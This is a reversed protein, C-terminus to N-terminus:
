DLMRKRKRTGGDLMDKQRSRLGGGLMDKARNSSAPGIVSPRSGVPDILGTARGVGSVLPTMGGSVDWAAKGLEGQALHTAAKVGQTLAPPGLESWQSPGHGSAIRQKLEKDDDGLVMRAAAQDAIFHIPGLLSIYSMNEVFRGLLTRDKRLPDKGQFAASLDATVEGSASAGLMRTAFREIANRFPEYKVGFLNLNQEIWGEKATQGIREIGKLTNKGTNILYSKYRVGWQLLPDNEFRGQLAKNKGHFQTEKTVARAFENVATAQQEPSYKAPNRFVDQTERPLNMEDMLRFDSEKSGKLMRQGKFKGSTFSITDNFDKIFDNLRSVWTRNAVDAVAGQLPAMKDWLQKGTVIFNEAIAGAMRADEYSDGYKFVSKALGKAFDVAGVASPVETATQFASKIGQLSLNAAPTITDFASRGIQAWANDSTSYWWNAPTAKTYGAEPRHYLSAIAKQAASVVDPGGKALAQGIPTKGLGDIVNEANVFAETVDQGVHKIGALRTYESKLIQALPSGSRKTSPLPSYDLIPRLKGSQESVMAAPMMPILREHEMAIQRDLPQSALGKLAEAIAPAKDSGYVKGLEKQLQIFDPNGEVMWERASPALRQQFRRGQKAVFDRGMSTQVGLQEGIKGTAATEDIYSRVLAKGEETLLPYEAPNILMKPANGDVNIQFRGARLNPAGVKAWSRPAVLENLEAIAKTNDLAKETARNARYTPMAMATESQTVVRRLGEALDEGAKSGSRVSANQLTDVMGRAFGTDTREPVPEPSPEARQVPSRRPPNPQVPVHEAAVPRKIGGWASPIDATRVPQATSPFQAASPTTRAGQDGQQPRLPSVTSPQPRQSLTSEASPSNAELSAMKEAEAALELEKAEQRGAVTTPDQKPEKAKKELAERIIKLGKSKNREANGGLQLALDWVDERPLLAADEMVQEVDGGTEIAKEVRSLRAAVAESGEMRPAYIAAKATEVDEPVGLIERSAEDSLGMTEMPDVAEAQPKAAVQESKLSIGPRNSRAEKMSFDRMAFRLADDTMTDLERSRLAGATWYDSLKEPNAGAEETALKTIRESQEATLRPKGPMNIAGRRELYNHMGRANMGSPAMFEQLPKASYSLFDAVAQQLTPNPVGLREAGRAVGKAAMFAPNQLGPLLDGPLSVMEALPEAVVGALMTKRESPSMGEAQLGKAAEGALGRLHSALGQPPKIGFAAAPGAALDKFGGGLTSLASQDPGYGAAHAGLAGATLLPAGATRLYPELKHIAKEGTLPPPVFGSSSLMNGGFQLPHEGLKQITSKPRTFAANTYADISKDSVDFQPALSEYNRDAVHRPDNIPTIPAPTSGFVDKELSSPGGGFSNAIKEAEEAAKLEKLVRWDM